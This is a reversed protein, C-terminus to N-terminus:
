RRDGIWLLMGVAISVMFVIVAVVFLLQTAIIWGPRMSAGDVVVQHAAGPCRHERCHVGTDRHHSGCSGPSEHVHPVKGEIRETVQRSRMEGQPYHVTDLVALWYGPLSSLPCDARDGAAGAHRFVGTCFM